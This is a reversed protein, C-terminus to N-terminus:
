RRFRDYRLGIPHSFPKLHGPLEFGRFLAGCRYCYVVTPVRKYLVWDILALVPLSLGYTWPVFVIGISLVFLGLIQNFDKSLYFHPCKCIPCQQFLTAVEGIVGGERGCHLCSFHGQSSDVDCARRCQPCRYTIMQKM